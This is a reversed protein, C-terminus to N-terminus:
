GRSEISTGVISSTLEPAVDPLDPISNLKSAPEQRKRKLWCWWDHLDLGDAVICLDVHRSSDLVLWQKQGWIFKFTVKLYFLFVFHLGALLIFSSCTEAKCNDQRCVGIQLRPALGPFLARCRWGPVRVWLIYHFTGKLKFLVVMCYVM